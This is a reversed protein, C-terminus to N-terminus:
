KVRTYTQIQTYGNQETEFQLTNNTLYFKSTYTQSNAVDTYVITSDDVIEYTIDYRESSGGYINTKTATGDEFFEIVMEMEIGNQTANSTWKGIITNNSNCACLTTAILLITLALILAKKM